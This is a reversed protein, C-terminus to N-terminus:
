SATLQRSLIWRVELNRIGQIDLGDPQVAM